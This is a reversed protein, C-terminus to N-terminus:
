CSVLTISDIMSLDKIQLQNTSSNYYVHPPCPCQNYNTLQKYLCDNTNNSFHLCNHSLLYPENNCIINSGWVSVSINSLTKYFDIRVNVGTESSYCYSGNLPLSNMNLIKCDDDFSRAQTVGDTCCGYRTGKCGGLKANSFMLMNFSILM